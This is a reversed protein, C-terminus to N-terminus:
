FSEVEITVEGDSDVDDLDYTTTDPELEVDFGRIVFSGEFNRINSLNARTKVSPEDVLDMEYRVQGASPDHGDRDIYLWDNNEFFKVVEHLLNLLVYTKDSVGVIQFTLDVTRPVPGGKHERTSGVREYPTKNLSYFRNEAISPGVLVIGPLESLKTINLVDAVTDDFDTHVTLSVNPHVQRKVTRIVERCLRMLDSSLPSGIVPRRYTFADIATVEDEPGGLEEGTAEDLNVIRIDVPPIPDADADDSYPPVVCTLVTESLVRVDRAVSSGFQVKVTPSWSGGIYGSGTPPPDSPLKFNEGVITALYGGGALGEATPGPGLGVDISVFGVPPILLDGVISAKGVFGSVEDISGELALPIRVLNGSMTSSAHLSGAPLRESEVMTAQLTSEGAVAVSMAQKLNLTGDLVGAADIGGSINDYTSLDAALSGSASMTATGLPVISCLKPSSLEGAADIFGSVQRKVAADADMSGSADIYGVVAIFGGLQLGDLDSEGDIAGALARPVCSLSGSVSSTSSASGKLSDFTTLDGAASLQGDVSGEVCMYQIATGDISSNGDVSGSMEVYKVLNGLIWGDGDCSGDIARAVHSEGIVDGQGDISGSVAQKNFLDGDISSSASVSGSMALPVRELMASVSSQGDIDVQLTDFTWLDALLTSSGDVSGSVAQKNFLDASVASAGDVSGSMHVISELTASQDGSGHIAGELTLDPTEVEAWSDQGMRGTGSGTANAVFRLRLDSYDTISAAQVQTLPQNAQTWTPGPVDLHTWSAIVTTGQVLYVYIDITRGATAEKRYTYRVWHDEDSQPDTVASFGIECLDNIPTNASQIFDNDDRTIEDIAQYLPAGGSGPFIWTGTTVDYSPRAFQPM